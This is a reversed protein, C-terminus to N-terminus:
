PEPPPAARALSNSPPPRPPAGVTLGSWGPIIRPPDPEHLQLQHSRTEAPVPGQGALAANCIARVLGPKGGFAKYITEVSVRAEAVEGCDAQQRQGHAPAASATPAGFRADPGPSPQVGGDDRCSPGCCTSAARM